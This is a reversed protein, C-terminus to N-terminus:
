LAGLIMPRREHTALWHTWADVDYNAAKLLAITKAVADLRVDAEMELAEDIDVLKSARSAVQVAREPELNPIVAAGGAIPDYVRRQDPTIRFALALMDPMDAHVRYAYASALEVKAPHNPQGHFFQLLFKGLGISYLKLFKMDHKIWCDNLASGLLHAEADIAAALAQGFSERAIQLNASIALQMQLGPNGLLEPAARTTIFLLWPSRADMQHSLLTRLADFTSRERGRPSYALHDCADINIVDFPAQRRLLEAAQSDDRAIDELRDPMILAGDTIRGAQRLASETTSAQTGTISIEGSWEDAGSDFGFYDIKVGRPSCVDALVQVDLMDAGPLTFYRLVGPLAPKRELLKVTLAAWQQDRVIQKVPHHWPKFDRNREGLTSLGSDEGLASGYVEAIADEPLEDREGSGNGRDTM